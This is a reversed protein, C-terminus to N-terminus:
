AVFIFRQTTVYYIKKLVCVVLNYMTHESRSFLKIAKDVVVSNLLKSNNQTFQEYM